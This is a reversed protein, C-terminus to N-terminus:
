EDVNALDAVSKVAKQKAEQRKRAATNSDGQAVADNAEQMAQNAEDLTDSSQGVRNNSMAVSEQDNQDSQGQFLSKVGEMEVVEQPEVDHTESLSEIVERHEKYQPNDDFWKERKYETKTMVDSDETSSASTDDSSSESDGQSDLGGYREEYQAVKSGLDGVYGYTDKLSKMAAEKDPFERGLENELESLTLTEDDSSQNPSGKDGGESSGVDQEDPDTDSQRSDQEDNAM